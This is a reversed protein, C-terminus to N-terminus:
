GSNTRDCYDKEKGPKNKPFITYGELNVEENGELVTETIAVVTPKEEQLIEQLSKVKSKVGRANVYYIKFNEFKRRIRKGRRVKKLSTEKEPKGDKDSQEETLLEQSKVAM